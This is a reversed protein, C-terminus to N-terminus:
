RILDRHWSESVLLLIRPGESPLLHERMSGTMLAAGKDSIEVTEWPVGIGDNM